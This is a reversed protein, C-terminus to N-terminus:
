WLSCITGAIERYLRLQLYLHSGGPEQLYLLIFGIVATEADKM